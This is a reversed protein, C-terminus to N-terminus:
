NGHERSFSRNQQMMLTPIKLLSPEERIDVNVMILTLTQLTIPCGHKTEAANNYWHLVPEVPREVVVKTM